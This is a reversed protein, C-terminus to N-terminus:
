LKVYTNASTFYLGKEVVPEGTALSWLDAYATVQPRYIEVLDVINRNEVSDTKYDVVVWGQEEKFALDVVGRIITPCLIQKNYNSADLQLPIEVMRSKSHTCRKWIDSEVVLKVTNLARALMSVELGHEVLIEAAVSNLDSDPSNMAIELLNHIVSGWEPGDGKGIGISWSKAGYMEHVTTTMYTPRVCKEWNARIMKRSVLRDETSLAFIAKASPEQSGSDELEPQDSLSDSFFSWFNTNNNSERQSITLSKGARTAAVYRLRLEEAAQFRKEEAMLQNWGAPQALTTASKRKNSQRHEIAMYGYVKDKSRDVFLSPGREWYGTADALYVIPAELGKVKHLNMIRVVSEQSPRVPLFDHEEDRHALRGLYDVLESYTTFDRSARRLLEITKFVNGADVSGNINCAAKVALGLDEVIMETSPIPPLTRIWGAYRSLRQFAESFKSEVNPDMKQPIESYFNFVGGQRKFNFLDADSFGFLEGRLVSVLAIQNFPQTLAILCDHLLRLENSHNLSAGGTVQTPVGIESLKQSYVALNAKRYTVIMFDGPNLTTESNNIGVGDLKGHRSEEIANKIDRAIVEAEMDVAQSNSKCSRPVILKRLTVLNSLQGHGKGETLSVYGPSYKTSCETFKGAFSENVWDILVKEARFNASLTVIEGGSEKIIQKVHNYTVIDARRFRYISQKPDGVVFLSGSIPSCKRWDTEEASSSTLLLLVEAQIPDTDQFEDILIHTFRQQFFSRVNPNSRLMKASVMLLDQYNLKGSEMRLQDYIKLAPTIASLLPAYCYERWETLFPEALNIRFEEWRELEEKAQVIGGPWRTNAPKVSKFENLIEVFESTKGIREAQRLMMPIKHYKPILTDTGYEVPLSHKLSEMRSVLIKLPDLVKSIDPQHIEHTPWEDVDSFDALKLFADQLQGIRIGLDDLKALVPSDSAYLQAVYCNWAKARFLGDEAEEMEEFDINVGAEVPRERLLRACFSHITGIFCLDISSLASKLCDAQPAVASRIRKELEMQFRSRLESAAKRTFTVAAIRNIPCKNEALLNVMRGVMCTTKGTGAAAEVLMTEDLANLIRTRHDQDSPIMSKSAGL